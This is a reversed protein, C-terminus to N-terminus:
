ARAITSDCTNSFMVPGMAQTLTLNDREGIAPSAPSCDLILGRSVEERGVVRSEMGSLQRVNM